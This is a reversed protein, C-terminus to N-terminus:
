NLWSGQHYMMAQTHAERGAEASRASHRAGMAAIHKLILIGTRIWLPM